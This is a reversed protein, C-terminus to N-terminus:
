YTTDPEFLMEPIYNPPMPLIGIDYLRSKIYQHLQHTPIRMDIVFLKVGNKKCISIKAEDRKIRELYRKRSEKNPYWKTHLPGSFEVAIALEECYGDLELQKGKYVLWKPCVTPFKKGTHKEFIEIVRQESKTRPSKTLDKTINEYAGIIQQTRILYYAVTIAIIIFLLVVFIYM